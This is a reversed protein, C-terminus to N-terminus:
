VIVNMERSSSQMNSSCLPCMPTESLSFEKQMWGVCQTCQWVEINKVEYVKEEQEKKKNFFMINSGEM